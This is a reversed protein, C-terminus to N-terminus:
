RLLKDVEGLFSSRASADSTLPTLTKFKALVPASEFKLRERVTKPFLPKFLGVFAQLVFPLNLIMTPGALSPYLKEYSKSSETLAKSFKPDPAKRTGSIDNAFVVNCLRGSKESRANVVLSHVEKVYLLFDTLQNVSLKSMMEKDDILSARIVYVLDGANTSVTVINEPTIFQNITAAHPAAARV